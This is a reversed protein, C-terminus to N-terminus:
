IARHFDIVANRIVRNMWTRFNAKKSDYNMKAISKWIKLLIDQALDEIDNPSISLRNLVVNIFNKYFDVFEDWAQEDDQNQVRM